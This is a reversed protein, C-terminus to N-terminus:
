RTKHIWSSDKMHATKNNQQKKHNKTHVGWFDEHTNDKNNKNKINKRIWIFSMHTNDKNDKDQQKIHKKYHIWLVLKM